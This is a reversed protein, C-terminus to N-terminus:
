QACKAFPVNLIVRATHQISHIFADYCSAHNPKAVGLLARNAEAAGAQAAPRRQRGAGASGAQRNAEKPTLAM